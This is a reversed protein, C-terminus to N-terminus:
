VGCPTDCITAGVIDAVYTGVKVFDGPALSPVNKCFCGVFFFNGDYDMGANPHEVTQYNGDMDM